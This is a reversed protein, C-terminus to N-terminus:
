AAAEEILESATILPTLAAAPVAATAEALVSRTHIIWGGPESKYPKTWVAEADRAPNRWVTAGSLARAFPGRDSRMGAEEVARIIMRRDARTGGVDPTAPAARLAASVGPASAHHITLRWLPSSTPVGPPHTATVEALVATLDAAMRVRIRRSPDLLIWASGPKAAVAISAAHWGHALLEDGIRRQIFFTAPLNV